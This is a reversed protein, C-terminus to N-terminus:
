REGQTEKTRLCEARNNFKRINGNGEVHYTKYNQTPIKKKM